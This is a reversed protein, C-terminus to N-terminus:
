RPAPLLTAFAAAAGELITRSVGDEGSARASRVAGSALTLAPAYAAAPNGQGRAMEACIDAFAAAYASRAARDARTADGTLAALTCSDFVEDLTEPDLYGAFIARMQDHLMRAGTGDRRELMALLPHEHRIVDAFIAAKSRYHAYFAGRTLGAQAMLGDLSVGDYGQKRFAKAAGERIRRTIRDKDADKLRM